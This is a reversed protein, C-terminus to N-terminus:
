GLPGTLAPLEFYVLLFSFVVNFVFYGVLWRLFRRAEVPERRGFGLRGLTLIAMVILAGGVALLLTIM